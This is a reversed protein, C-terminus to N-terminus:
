VQKRRRSLAMASLGLGLLALSAPEPVRRVDTHEVMSLGLTYNGPSLGNTLAHYPLFVDSAYPGSFTQTVGPNLVQQTNNLNESDALETGGVIGGPAGDPAWAFLPVLDGVRTLTITFTLAGRAVSGSAAASDLLARIFPDALFSFDVQCLHTADGCQGGVVIPITLTTSSDNRGNADAFGVAPINSEAANRAVIPTGTATQETVVIADGWSYATPLSGFIGLPGPNVGPTASYYVNGGPSTWTVENARVPNSGTGNSALADPNPGPVNSTTGSGNLTASSTSSSAPVGFNIFPNGPAQPVGNVEAFILGNKINDTAVAYANAHVNSSVGLACALLSASLAHLKFKTNM